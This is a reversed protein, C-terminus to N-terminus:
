VNPTYLRKWYPNLVFRSEAAIRKSLRNDFGRRITLNMKKFWM